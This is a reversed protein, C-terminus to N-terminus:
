QTSERIDTVSPESCDDSLNFPPLAEDNQDTGSKLLQDPKLENWGLVYLAPQIYGHAMCDDWYPILSFDLHPYTIGRKGKELDEPDWSSEM